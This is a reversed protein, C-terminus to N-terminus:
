NFLGTKYGIVYLPIIASDATGPTDSDTIQQYGSAVNYTTDDVYTIDRWRHYITNNASINCQLSTSYGKIIKQSFIKNQSTGQNFIIELVDYDNSSLTITQTSFNSAPNPNTWLVKGNIGNIYDCSYGDTTSESYQNYVTSSHQNAENIASVLDTKATTELESLDGINTNISNTENEVNDQLLNLNEASLSTTTDPLNKFDIKNM